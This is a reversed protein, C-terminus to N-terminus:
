AYQILSGWAYTVMNIACQNKLAYINYAVSFLFHVHILNLICTRAHLGLVPPIVIVM